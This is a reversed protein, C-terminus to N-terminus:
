KEAKRSEEDEKMAELLSDHAAIRREVAGSRHMNSSCSSFLWAFFLSFFLFLLKKKM